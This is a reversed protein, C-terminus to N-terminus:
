LHLFKMFGTKRTTESSLYLYEAARTMGVYLVRREEQEQQHRMQRLLFQYLRSPEKEKTALGVWPDYLVEPERQQNGRSLDVLFVVKWEKGKAGHITSLQVANATDDLWQPVEIAQTRLRRLRRVLSFLGQGPPYSEIFQLVAQYDLQHRQANPLASLVARYGTLRAAHQILRLPSEQFVLALLQQLVSATEAFHPHAQLAQYLPTDPFASQALDYIHNDSHALYPSRLLGVLALNDKPNALFSLLNYVDTAEPTQLLQGGAAMSVPVNASSLANALPGLSGWNRALVAIDKPYIPPQSSGDHRSLLDQITGCLWEAQLLRGEKASVREQPQFAIVYPPDLQAPRSSWMPRHQDKLLQAFRPNLEQLLGSHSRFNQDFVVQQGHGQLVREVFEFYVELRAGNFGYIAQKDDGVLTFWQPSLQKLVQGQVPNTDQFEDVVVAQYRQLRQRVAPNKLAQLAHRELDAFSLKRRRYREQQVKRDVEIVSQALAPLAQLLRLDQPGFPTQLFGDFLEQALDRAQKVAAKAAEFDSGWAKASGGRMGVAALQQLAQALREQWVPTCQVPLLGNAEQLTQLAQLVRIRNEELKDNPPGELGQLAVGIQPWQPHQAVELWAKAAEYQLRHQIETPSHALAQMLGLPDRLYAQLLAETVMPGLPMQQPTLESLARQVDEQNRFVSELDDEVAFDPPVGAELPFEQCIRLCFAHFTSIPALDLEALVEQPLRGQGLKRVREKLEQAAVETFTLGVVQLPRLGQTLHYLYREALLTTKGSGAGAVVAVSTNAFAAQAQQPTLNM